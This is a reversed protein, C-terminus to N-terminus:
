NAVAFTHQRYKAEKVSVLTKKSSNPIPRSYNKINVDFLKIHTHKKLKYQWSAYYIMIITLVSCLETKIM